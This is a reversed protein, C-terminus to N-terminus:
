RTIKFSKKQLSSQPKNTLAETIIGQPTPQDNKKLSICYSRENSNLSQLLHTANDLIKEQDLKNGVLVIKREKKYNKLAENKLHRAYDISWQQNVDFM